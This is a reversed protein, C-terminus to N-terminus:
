FKMKIINRRSKRPAIVDEGETAQTTTGRRDLYNLVNALTQDNNSSSTTQIQENKDMNTEEKILFPTVAVIKTNLPKSLVQDQQQLSRLVHFASSIHSYYNHHQLFKLQM